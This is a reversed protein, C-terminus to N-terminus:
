IFEQEKESMENDNIYSPGTSIRDLTRYDVLQMPIATPINGPGYVMDRRTRPCHLVKATEVAHELDEILSEAEKIDIRIEYRNTLIAIPTDPTPANFVAKIM